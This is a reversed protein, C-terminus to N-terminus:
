SRKRALWAGGLTLLVGLSGLPLASGCGKAPASDTEEAETNGATDEPRVDPSDTDPHDTTPEDTAPEDTAPTDTEPEPPTPDDPTDTDTSDPLIDKGYVEIEGLQSLYGGTADTTDSHRTICVRVYRAKVSDATYSQDLPESMKVDKGEGIRIWREGDASVEVTYDSPFTGGNNYLAPRLVIADILFEDELDVTIDVAADRALVDFPSVSWGVNLCQDFPLQVGDTLFKALFYNGEEYSSTANVPKDQALNAGESAYMKLASMAKNLASLAADVKSQAVKTDAAVTKASELAKKFDEQGDPKYKTLDLAEATEIAKNLFYYDTIEELRYKYSEDMKLLIGEGALLEVTYVGDQDPTMLVSEGTETSIYSVSKVDKALTFKVTQPDNYDRNVLIAYENDTDKEVMRSVTLKQERDVPRLYHGAPLANYGGGFNTGTHYVTETDLKMLTPGIARIQWNLESVPEYLDTPKGELDVIAPGYTEAANARPTHYCFYSYQKAGYALGAWVQYRIDDGNPRYCNNWAMSQVYFATPTNLERGIARNYELYTYMSAEDCVANRFCYVDYMVYDLLGEGYKSLEKHLARVNDAYQGCYNVHTVAYPMIEKITAMARAYQKSDPSEDEIYFGTLGPLHSYKKVFDKIEKETKSPWTANTFDVESVTVDMGREYAMAIAKLNNEYTIAGADFAFNLEVNTIGSKQLTDFYDPNVEEAWFYPMFTVINFQDEVRFTDVLVATKYEKGTSLDKATVVAEGVAVAHVTGDADVKVVKDNSSSYAVEPRELRRDVILELWDTEGPNMRLAAKNIVTEKMEGEGYGYLEIEGLASSAAGSADKVASHRTIHIRFFKITVPADLEYTKPQVATNSDAKASVNKQASYVSFWTKGDTSGQLEFDRPFTEGNGWKMPYLVVTELAYEGDLRITIDVPDTEGIGSYPDTNWGLKVNSGELTKWEGDNLFTANYFGEPPVYSNTAEIHQGKAFNYSKTDGAAAPFASVPLMLLALALCLIRCILFIKKVTM